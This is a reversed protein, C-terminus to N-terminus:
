VVLAIVVIWFCISICLAVVCGRAAADETKMMELEERYMAFAEVLQMSGYLWRQYAAEDQPTIM